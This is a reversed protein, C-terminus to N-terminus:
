NEKKIQGVNVLFLFDTEYISSSTDRVKAPPMLFAMSDGNVCTVSRVSPTTKVCASAQNMVSFHVRDLHIVNVLHVAM